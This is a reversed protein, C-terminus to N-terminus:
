PCPGSANLIRPSATANGAPGETPGDVGDVIYWYLRGSVSAPSELHIPGTSTGTGEFRICSDVDSTLVKPLDAAIGRYLRYSTANPVTSWALTSTGGATWNLGGVENIACPVVTVTVNSTNASSCGEESRVTLTYTTTQAPSATPNCSAPDSLGTAPSWSCSTGGSGSLVTSAGSCITAAGSATAMPFGHVEVVRLDVNQSIKGRSDTVHLRAGYDGNSNYTHSVTPSSQIAAPTGDGFDFQYTAITDGTDPDTSPSGDLVVTLPVCGETPTLTMAATPANNVRCSANGVLTYLGEPSFDSSSTQTVPTGNARNFFTRAHMATLTQSVGIGDILSNSITIRITGTAPDYSGDDASGGATPLNANPPSIKGYEFSPAGTADTKMAVYNRDFSSDPLTRNWLIYWQSNPTPLTSEGVQLTFVLKSSNDAFYPESVSLSSINVAPTPPVNPPSDSADTSVRTGPGACPDTGPGVTRDVFVENCFSGEGVSNM